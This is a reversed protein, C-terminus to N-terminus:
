PEPPQVNPDLCEGVFIKKEHPNSLAYFQKMKANFFPEHSKNFSSMTSFNYMVNM